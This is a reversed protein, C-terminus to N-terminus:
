SKGYFFSIYVSGSAAGAGLDKVYMQTGMTIYFGQDSVQNSAVDNLIYGGAPLFIHDTSGEFSIMVGVDTDNVFIFQRAIKTLATGVAAYTGSISGFALSRIADARFKIALGM